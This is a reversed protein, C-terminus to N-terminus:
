VVSKRDLETLRKRPRPLSSMLQRCQEFDGPDLLARCGALKTMERLEKITFAVQLPGRRGVLRVRRVKSEALQELAHQCIDTTKLQDIPTLLMRAVDLAVNGQGVVVATEGSLDPNLNTHAPLGNYWGVFARASYVGPLDEGPVGLVRDGEAGYALVVAHYHPTLQSLSVDTGVSVNGIFRCHGSRALETFQNICNKVEPHDPAVGFRVLGFPVPLREVIDVRADPDRKRLQHATYFGAPGSGVVCVRLSQPANSSSCCSRRLLRRLAGSSMHETEFPNFKCLLRVPIFVIHPACLTCM